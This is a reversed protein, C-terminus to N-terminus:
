RQIGAKDLRAKLGDIEAVLDRPPFLQKPLSNHNKLDQEAPEEVKIALKALNVNEEIIVKRIDPNETTESIARSIYQGGETYKTNTAKDKLQRLYYVKIM